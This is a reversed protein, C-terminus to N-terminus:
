DHIAELGIYQDLYQFYREQENLDQWWRSLIPTKSPDAFWKDLEAKWEEYSLM